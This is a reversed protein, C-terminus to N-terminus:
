DKSKYILRNLYYFGFGLANLGVLIAGIFILSKSVGFTNFNLFAYIYNGTISGFILAFVMYVAPIVLVTFVLKWSTKSQNSFVFYYALMLAPNLGHLFLKGGTFSYKMVLSVVFVLLLLIAFDLFLIQPINKNLLLLIGAVLLFIGTILSSLFTLQYVKEFTPGYDILSSLLFTLSLAFTAIIQIIRKTEQKM